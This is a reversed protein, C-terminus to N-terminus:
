VKVAKRGGSISTVSSLLVTRYQAGLFSVQRGSKGEHVRVTGRVHESEEAQSIRNVWVIKCGQLRESLEPDTLEGPNFSFDRRPTRVAAGPRRQRVVARAAMQEETAPPTAMAKRADSANRLRGGSGDQRVYTPGETCAGNTWFITICEPGRSVTVTDVGDESAVSGDWGAARADAYFAQAKPHAETEVSVRQRPVPNSHSAKKSKEKETKKGKKPKVKKARLAQEAARTEAAIRERELAKKGM